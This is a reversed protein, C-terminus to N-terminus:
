ESEATVDSEFFFEHLKKAALVKGGWKVEFVVGFSGSGLELGTPEVGDLFLDALEESLGGAM